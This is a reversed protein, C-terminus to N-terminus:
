GEIRRAMGDLLYQLGDRFLVDVEMDYEHELMRNMMPFRGSALIAQLKPLQTDMWEENDLGTAAQADSEAELNVGVGRAFNFIILQMDFAELMTLGYGDLAALCWETFAVGGAAPQPRTLSMASALWPHRRFATWLATGALELRARWGSPPEAPQEWEGLAADLMRLVLDDKDVVHRYLSMTAVGIEAAVRRMSLAALGEADAVRVAAAVIAEPTLATPEAVPRPRRAPPKSVEAVVTGVGPVADVLGELRLATLVKTATAMAVGWERTLERTSPVRDGPALEGSSIRERLAAVIEASPTGGAM